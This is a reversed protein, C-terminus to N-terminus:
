GPLGVQGGDESRNNAKTLSDPSWRRHKVYDCSVEAAKCMVEFMRPIIEELFDTEECVIEEMVTDAFTLIRNLRDLLDLPM